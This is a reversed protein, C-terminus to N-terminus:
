ATNGNTFNLAIDGTGAVNAVKPTTTVSIPDNRNKTMSVLTALARVYNTM